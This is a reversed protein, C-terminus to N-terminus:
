KDSFITRLANRTAPIQKAVLSNASNVTNWLAQVEDFSDIDRLQKLLEVKLNVSAANELTRPLVTETSWAINAFIPPNSEKMAILYYGGDDTPGFVADTNSLKEFAKGVLKSDITPLDSGIICVKEYGRALTEQFAREMKLGLDGNHQPFYSADSGMWQQMDLLGDPPWFSVLLDYDPCSSHQAFLDNGMAMYLQQSQEQTLQPQMRTKVTGLRPAKMFMILANKM